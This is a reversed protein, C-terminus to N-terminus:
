AGWAAVAEVAEQCEQNQELAAPTLVCTSLRAFLFAHMWTSPSSYILLFM